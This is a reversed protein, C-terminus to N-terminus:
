GPTAAWPLATSGASKNVYSGPWQNRFDPTLEYHSNTMVDELHTIVRAKTLPVGEPLPLDTTAQKEINTMYGTYFLFTRAIYSKAVWRTANLVNDLIENGALVSIKHQGLSIGELTPTFGYPDPSKDRYAPLLPNTVLVNHMDNWYINGTGLWKNRTNNFTFNEGVTVIDHKSNKVLQCFHFVICHPIVFTMRYNLYIGGQPESFIKRTFGSNRSWRVASGKM